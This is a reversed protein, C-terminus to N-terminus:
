WKIRNNYGNKQLSINFKKHLIYLLLSLYIIQFYKALILKIFDTFCFSPALQRIHCSAGEKM